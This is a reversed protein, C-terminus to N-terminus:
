HRAAHFPTGPERAGHQEDPQQGHQEREGLQQQPGRSEHVVRPFELEAAHRAGDRLIGLAAVDRLRLAEVREGRIVPVPRLM